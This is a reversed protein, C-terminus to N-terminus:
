HIMEIGVRTAMGNDRSKLYQIGSIASGRAKKGVIM